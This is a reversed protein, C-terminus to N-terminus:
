EDVETLTYKYNRLFNEITITGDECIDIQAINKKGDTIFRFQHNPSSVGPSSQSGFESIVSFTLGANRLTEEIIVIDGFAYELDAVLYQPKLKKPLVTSELTCSKGDYFLEALTTGFDSVMLLSIEKKNVTLYVPTTFSSEGFNATLLYMKETEKEICAPPLVNITKTNTVFVKTSSCSAFMLASIMILLTKKIM